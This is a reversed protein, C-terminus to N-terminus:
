NFVMLHILTDRNILITLGRVKFNVYLPVM